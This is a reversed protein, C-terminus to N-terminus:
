LVERLIALKKEAQNDTHSAPQSRWLKEPQREWAVLRRGQDDVALPVIVRKIQGKDGRAEVPLPTPDLMTADRRPAYLFTIVLPDRGEVKFSDATFLQSGRDTVVQKLQERAVPEFRSLLEPSIRFTM